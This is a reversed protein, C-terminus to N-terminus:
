NQKTPISAMVAGAGTGIALGIAVGIGINDFIVIGLFAGLAVGIAMAGGFSNNGQDSENVAYKGVENDEDLNIQHKRNNDM